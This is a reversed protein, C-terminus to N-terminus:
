PRIEAVLTECFTQGANVKTLAHDSQASFKHFTRNIFATSSPVSISTLPNVTKSSRQSKAQQGANVKRSLTSKKPTSKPQSMQQNSTQQSVHQAPQGLLSQQNFCGTSQRLSGVCKEQKQNTKQLIWKYTRDANQKVIQIIATLFTFNSRAYFM